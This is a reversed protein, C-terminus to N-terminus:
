RKEGDGARSGRLKAPWNVVITVATPNAESVSDVLFRKGDVAVDYSRAMAQVAAQTSFLAHVAGSEFTSGQENVEAVMMQLDPSLYFLEKGDRGFVPMEGGAISIQRLNGPQPFSTVYVEDRGTENSTYAVWRGNPHFVGERGGAEGIRLVYPTRDGFLPLVSIESRGRQSPDRQEFLLYRGDPSWDTPNKNISTQLLLVDEGSASAPKRYLNFVGSRNSAFAIQTADPSWVPSMNVVVTAGFTLRTKLKTGLQYRWIEVKGTAPDLVDVALQKGDPSARPSYYVMAEDFTDTRQGQRDYWALQTGSAAASRSYALIGGTSASFVASLTGPSYAISDALAVPDGEIKLTKVDFPQAVLARNGVYILDGSQYIARSRLPLLRHNEKSDLSGVYLGEEGGAAGRPNSANFLFHRGDPLFWPWRHTLGGATGVVTVPTPVGGMSPVQYLPGIVDPAFVIVGQQSWTGGRAFPADCLRHPAGGAVEIRKLTGQAFFGLSRGDPSWFPYSAGDTGALAQATLSGLPRVWLQVKGEPGRAGFALLRGDPSVAVPASAFGAFNFTCKEPPPVEFRIPSAEPSPKEFYTRGAALGLGLALLLAAAALTWAWWRSGKKPFAATRKTAGPEAGGEGIGRLQLAVDQAIQWREDPDKAMCTKILRQLAAPVDARLGELPPPDSELVAKMVALTSDGTFPPRGAMIEYLVCGLSFVDTRADAERGEIQEPAMYHLTGIVMGTATLREKATKAGGAFSPQRKLTALGFDLLKAGAKTLMINGPKLDRHVVGRRHAAELALAVETGYKLVQDIPLPGRKMRQALTEGELYEMVIFDTGGQSGVDYLACINPHSLSSIARAERAFRERFEADQSLRSSLVKIAVRRGLRTDQARYVEGMGGEGVPAEIQYPGLLAGKALPM